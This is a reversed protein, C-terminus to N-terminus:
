QWVNLANLDQLCFSDLLQTLSESSQSRRIGDSERFFANDMCFAVFLLIAYELFKTEAVQGNTPDFVGLKVALGLSWIGSRDQSLVDFL